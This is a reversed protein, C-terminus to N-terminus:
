PLRPSHGMPYCASKNYRHKHFVHSMQLTIPSNRWYWSFQALVLFIAGCLFDVFIYVPSYIIDIFMIVLCSTSDTIHWWQWTRGASNGNALQWRQLVTILSHTALLLLDDFFNFRQGDHRFLFGLFPLITQLYQIVSRNDM